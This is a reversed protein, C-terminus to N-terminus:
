LLLSSTSSPFFVKQKIGYHLASIQKKQEAMIWHILGFMAAGKDCDCDYSMM